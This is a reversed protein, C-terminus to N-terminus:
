RPFDVYFIEDFRGKRLLEPPLSSMDNATAVVFVPTTKEQMWTLFHGFLRTAIENHSGGVGAFAKELEDIWLVCPSVDEALKLARRM